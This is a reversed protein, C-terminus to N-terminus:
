ILEQSVGSHSYHPTEQGGCVSEPTYAVPLAINLVEDVADVLHFKMEARIEEPIEELDKRNKMPLIVDTIGARSAALVKEKIGGVPLVRGRLTIEGTMALKERVPTGTALSALVAAMTIGASPGDKPTAGAPVHLHVDYEDFFGPDIGLIEARSRVYSLAAQASERMVDGLQGTLTLSEGKRLTRKMRAAEVFIIDGGSQTWALGIAVGPEHTREATESFFKEPGLYEHVDDETVTSRVDENQAINKATKRCVTGIERELNRVGAERTYNRIISYIAEDTITLQDESIGHGELQKPVLFRKAIQLKETETYGPLRLVEM